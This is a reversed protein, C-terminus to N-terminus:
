LLALERDVLEAGEVCMQNMCHLWLDELEKRTYNVYKLLLRIRETKGFLHTKGRIYNLMVPINMGYKETGHELIHILLPENVYNFMNFILIAADYQTVYERIDPHLMLVDFVEPTAQYIASSLNWERAIDIRETLRERIDAETITGNTIIDYLSLNAGEGKQMLEGIERPFHQRLHELTPDRHDCQKKLFERMMPSLENVRSKQISRTLVGLLKDTRNIYKRFRAKETKPLVMALKARDFVDLKNYVHEKIEIPLDMYNFANTKAEPELCSVSM